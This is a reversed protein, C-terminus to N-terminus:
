QILFVSMDSKKEVLVGDLTELGVHVVSKKDKPLQDFGEVLRKRIDRAKKDISKEADCYWFAGAAFDMTTLYQNNSRGDGFYETEGFVVHTFGRNPDQYGAILECLQSSGMKVSLRELHERAKDFNVTDFSVQWQEKSIVICQSSLFPLKGALQKVLFDDPLSELEVHFVIEFIAPIRKDILYNRLHIWM